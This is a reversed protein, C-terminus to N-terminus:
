NYHGEMRKLQFYDQVKGRLDDPQYYYQKSTYDCVIHAGPRDPLSAADRCPNNQVTGMRPCNHLCSNHEVSRPLLDELRGSPIPLAM